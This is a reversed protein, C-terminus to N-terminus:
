LTARETSTLRLVAGRRRALEVLLLPIDETRARLPPVEIRSRDLRFYTRAGIREILVAPDAGIDCTAVLRMTGAAQREVLRDIWGGFERTHQTALADLRELVVVATQRLNGVLLDPDFRASPSWRACEVLAASGGIRQVLTR